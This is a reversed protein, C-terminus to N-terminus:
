KERKTFIDMGRRIATIALTNMMLIWTLHLSRLVIEETPGDQVIGDVGSYHFVAISTADTCDTKLRMSAVRM